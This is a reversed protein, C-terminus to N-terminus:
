NGTTFCRVHNGPIMYVKAPTGDAISLESDLVSRSAMYYSYQEDPLGSRYLNDGLFIVTTKEDMPILRRVAEVVPHKGNLFQGADGILIIRADITDTQAESMVSCCLLTFAFCITKM